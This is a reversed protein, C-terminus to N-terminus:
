RCGCAALAAVAADIAPRPDAAVARDAVISYALLDGDATTVVGALSSVGTLTGTKGRVYGAGGAGNYVFRWDLSGTFGAVPLGTLAARLHPYEPSAATTVVSTILDPTLSNTRALGSADDLHNGALDIGLRGLVASMATVTGAFTAPEGEAVAVHRGLVEATENNSTSLVYEVIKDLRASRIRAIQEAGDPAAGREPAGEVTIGAATLADAFRGAADMAPDDARPLGSPWALRAQDVWLASIPAVVGSPVYQEEWAPSETETFLTDDVTLRVTTTGADTLNAATREALEEITVRAPYIGEAAATETSALLPDGGGVLVIPVAQEGAEADGDPAAPAEGTGGYVVSTEFRHGPGLTDLVSVATLLKTTSAPIFGEGAGRGYLTKGTAVDRVSMGVHGGLSEAALLEDLAAALGQRTPATGSDYAELVPIPTGTPTPTPTPTPTATTEEPGAQTGSSSGDASVEDSGGVDIKVAGTAVAAFGLGAIVALAVIAVVVRRGTSHYLRHGHM